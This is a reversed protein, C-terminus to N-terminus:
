NMDSHRKIAPKKQAETVGPAIPKLNYRIVYDEAVQNEEGAYASRGRKPKAPVRAEGSTSAVPPAQTRVGRLAASAAHLTAPGLPLPQEISGLQDTARESSTLMRNSSAVWGLALLVAVAAAISAAQRWYRHIQPDTQLFARLRRRQRGVQKWGALVTQSQRRVQAALKRAELRPMQLRPIRRAPAAKAQPAAAIEAPQSQAQAPDLGALDVRLSEAPEPQEGASPDTGTLVVSEEGPPAEPTAFAPPKLVPWPVEPEAIAGPAIFVEMEGADPLSATERLAEEATRRAVRLELDAPTQPVAEPPVIQVEYGGARLRLILELTDEPSDTIIRALPM